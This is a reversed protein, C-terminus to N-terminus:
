VSVADAANASTFRWDAAAISPWHLWLHSSTRQPISSHAAVDNDDLSMAMDFHVIDAAACETPIFISGSGVLSVPAVSTQPLLPALEDDSLPSQPSRPPLSQDLERVKPQPSSDASDSVVVEIRLPSPPQKTDAAVNEENDDDDDDDDRYTKNSHTIIRMLQFQILIAAPTFIPVTLILYMSALTIVCLPWLTHINTLSSLALPRLLTSLSTSVSTQLPSLSPSAAPLTRM